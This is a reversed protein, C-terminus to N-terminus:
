RRCGGAGCGPVGHLRKNIIGSSISCLAMESIRQGAQLGPHPLSAATAVPKAQATSLEFQQM